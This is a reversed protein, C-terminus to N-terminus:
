EGLSWHHDTRVLIGDGYLAVSLGYTTVMQQV